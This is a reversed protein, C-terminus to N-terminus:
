WGALTFPLTVGEPLVWLHYLNRADVLESEPPYVEIAQREKGYLENKIRQFDTWSHVPAGDHRRIVIHM